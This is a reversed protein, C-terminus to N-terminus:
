DIEALWYWNHYQQIYCQLDIKLGALTPARGTLFVCNYNRRYARCIKAEKQNGLRSQFQM